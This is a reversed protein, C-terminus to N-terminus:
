RGKRPKKTVGVTLGSRPHSRTRQGRVRLGLEHRIGRYCRIKKMRNIDEQITLELDTGVLHIDKGTFLDKRRNLMWSPLFEHLNRVAYDLKEIMDDSLNGIKEHRPISLVNVLAEATRIGIGRIDALALIVNREGKLDTNAIRVIHKFEGNTM